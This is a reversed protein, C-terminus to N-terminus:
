ELQVESVSIPMKQWAFEVTCAYPNLYLNKSVNQFQIEFQVSEDLNKM